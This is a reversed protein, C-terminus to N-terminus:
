FKVLRQTKLLIEYFNMNTYCKSEQLPELFSSGSESGSEVSFNAMKTLRVIKLILKQWVPHSVCDQNNTWDNYYCEICNSPIKILISVETPM